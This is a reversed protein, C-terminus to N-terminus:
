SDFDTRCADTGGDVVAENVFKASIADFVLGDARFVKVKIVAGNRVTAVTVLVGVDPELVAHRRM